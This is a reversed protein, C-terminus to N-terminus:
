LLVKVPSSYRHRLGGHLVNSETGDNVFVGMSSQHTSRLTHSIEGAAEDCECVLLGFVEHYWAAPARYAKMM